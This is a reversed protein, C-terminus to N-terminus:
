KKDNSFGATKETEKNPTYTSEEIAYIIGKARLAKEISTARVEKKVIYVKEKAM